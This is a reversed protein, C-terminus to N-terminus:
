PRKSPFRSFDPGHPTVDLSGAATIRVVFRM